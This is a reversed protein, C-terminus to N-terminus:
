STVNVSTVPLSLEHEARKIEEATLAGHDAEWHHLFRVLRRKRILQALPRPVLRTM